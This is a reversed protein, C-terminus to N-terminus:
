RKNKKVEDLPPGSYMRGKRLGLYGKFIWLRRIRDIRDKEKLRFPGMKDPQFEQWKKYVGSIDIDELIKKLVKPLYRTSIASQYDILAPESNQQVLWNSKGRTDLHVVGREHIAKLLDECSLLYSEDILEQSVMNINTGKIYEFALTYPGVMVANQPVGTIGSLCDIIRKEHQLTLRGWTRVVPLAQSFDKVTWFVGEKQLRYVRANGWHGIRLVEKPCNEFDSETLTKKNDM